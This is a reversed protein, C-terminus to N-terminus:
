FNVDDYKDLLAYLRSRCGELRVNNNPENTRNWWVMHIYAVLRIKEKIVPDDKGFYANLLSNYLKTADDESIGFFGHEGIEKPDTIALYCGPYIQDTDINDGVVIVKGTLKKEM